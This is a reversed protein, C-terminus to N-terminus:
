PDAQGGSIGFTVSPDGFKDGVEVVGGFSIGVSQAGAILVCATMGKLVPEPFSPVASAAACGALTAISALAFDGWRVGAIGCATAVVSVLLNLCLWGPASRQKPRPPGFSARRALRSALDLLRFVSLLNAMKRRM